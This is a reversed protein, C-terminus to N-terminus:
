STDVLVCTGDRAEILPHLIQSQWLSHGLDFVHSRDLMETATTYALLQLEMRGKAQSSGYAM